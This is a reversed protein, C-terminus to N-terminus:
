AYSEGILKITQHSDFYDDYSVINFAHHNWVIQHTGPDFQIAELLPDYRIEFTVRNHIAESGNKYAEMGGTRNIRALVKKVEAWEENAEDRKQITILKDFRM